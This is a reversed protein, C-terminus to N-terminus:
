RRTGIQYRDFLRDALKAIYDRGKPSSELLPVLRQPLGQTGQLAGALAGAMAAITDTDGGLFIANAIVDEYSAPTLAFAAIATPVSELAEIGNGLQILADSTHIQAARELKQRYEASQCAALLRGFFEERDFREARSAIGVALAMLQAGEIGLPHVHTPLASLRAQEWLKELDDGFYLGVPAVRMAAGNGYSGVPFHRQAVERHDRGEEMAELVARAGRGYGRSPVYNAVFARCLEEERIEGHEALTEAVGIAMQTDDTYWIEDQPYAILDATTSFRERISEASRAEFRGGLADGIAKGLLCAQFRDRIDIMSSQGRAAGQYGSGATLNGKLIM